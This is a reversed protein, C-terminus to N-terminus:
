VELLDVTATDAPGGDLVGLLFEVERGVDVIFSLGEQGGM